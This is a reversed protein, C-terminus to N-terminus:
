HMHMESAVYTNCSGAWNFGALLCSFQTHVFLHVLLPMHFSYPEGVEMGHMKELHTYRIVPSSYPGSRHFPNHFPNHFSCHFTQTCRVAGNELM